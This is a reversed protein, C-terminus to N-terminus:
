LGSPHHLHSEFGQSGQCGGTSSPSSPTHHPCLSPFRGPNEGTVPKPCREGDRHAEGQEGAEQTQYWAQYWPIRQPFPGLGMGPGHPISSVEQRAQGGRPKGPGGGWGTRPVRTGFPLATEPQAQAGRVEQELLPAASSEKWNRGPLACVQLHLHYRM